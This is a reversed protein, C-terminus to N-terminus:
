LPNLWSRLTQAIAEPHNQVLKKARRSQAQRQTQRRTTESKIYEELTDEKSQELGELDSLKEEADQFMAAAAARGALAGVPVSETIIPGTPRRAVQRTLDRFLGRVFLLVLILGVVAGGLKTATSILEWRRQEALVHVQEEQSSKDFAMREIVVNDGRDTDIGIAAAVVSQLSSVTDEPVTDDVLIAVSLQKLTGSARKVTQITKSLEYNTTVDRRTYGPITGTLVSPYSPITGPTNSDVGPIGGISSNDGVYQEEQQRSSRLAGTEGNGPTYTESTSEVQDWDFIANVRAIAKGPGLVSGLATLLRAETDQEYDRKAQMHSTAAQLAAGEVSDTEGDALINGNMDVITVNDSGMGEVSSAVLHSIAQVQIRELRTGSRLQLIVSATPSQENDLFLSPEPIVIHVRATQIPNLSGITRSLEGELARQYNVKQLFDTMGLNGLQGADFVEFGVGGGKPLGQRALELRAESLRAAPVRITNGRDDLQYLIGAAQLADVVEAATQDDMNRYAVVFDPSQAAIGLIFLLALGFVGLGITLVRQTPSLQDWFEKLRASFTQM